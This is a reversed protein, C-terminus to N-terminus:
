YLSHQLVKQNAPNKLFVAVPVVVTNLYGAIKDFLLLKNQSSLKPNLQSSNKLNKSGASYCFFNRMSEIKFWYWMLIRYLHTIHWPPSPIPINVHFVITRLM